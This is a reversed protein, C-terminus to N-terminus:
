KFVKSHNNLLNCGFPATQKGIIFDIGKVNGGITIEDATL